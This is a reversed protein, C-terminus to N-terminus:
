PLAPPNRFAEVECALPWGCIGRVLIARVGEEEEVRRYEVFEGQLLYKATPAANGGTTLSQSIVAARREDRTDIVEGCGHTRDWWKCYAQRSPGLEGVMRLQEQYPEAHWSSYEATDRPPGLVKPLQGVEPFAQQKDNLYADRVVAPADKLTARLDRLYQQKHDGYVSASEEVVYNMLKARRAMKRQSPPLLQRGPEPENQTLSAPEQVAELPEEEAEDLDEAEVEAIEAMAAQVEAPRAQKRAASPSSRAKGRKSRTKKTEKPVEAVEAELKEQVGEAEPAGQMVELLEKARALIRQALLGKPGSRALALTKCVTKLDSLSYKAQLTAEADAKEALLGMAKIAKASASQRYLEDEKDLAEQIQRVLTAANIGGRLGLHECLGKLGIQTEQQLMELRAGPESRRLQLLQSSIAAEAKVTRRARMALGSAVAATLRFSQSTRRRMLTRRPWQLPVALSQAFGVADVRAPYQLLM